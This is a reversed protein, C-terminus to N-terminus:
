QVTLSYSATSSVAGSTAVVNFTYTGPATKTGSPTGNSPASHGGGCGTLSTVSVFLVFGVGLLLRRGRAVPLLTLLGLLPLGCALVTLARLSEGERVSATTAAGTSVTLTTTAAATDSVTVSAPAFSCAAYTPLGTCSFNVMGSFGATGAVSVQTSVPEGSIATLSTSGGSGSGLTLPANVTQTLTGSAAVNNADGSYAATITHSGASSFSTTYSATGASVVGTGLTTSGDSFVVSGAPSFGSITATFTVNEGTYSPNASAAVSVSSTVPNVTLNLLNSVSAAYTADGSYHATLSYEGPPLTPNLTAGGGTNPIFVANAGAQLNIFFLAVFSANGGGPIPPATLLAYEPPPNGPAATSTFLPTGATLTGDGNGLLLVGSGLVMDPKGDGNVDETVLSLQASGVTHTSGITFNVPAAFTGDGNGLLTVVGNNMTNAQYSFVLDMKGDGNLDAFSTSVIGEDFIASTDIAKPAGFGTGLNLMVNLRAPEATNGTPVTNSQSLVDVRGDENVDAFSLGFVNYYTNAFTGGTFSPALPYPGMATFNGSSDNHFVTFAYQVTGPSGNAPPTNVAVIDTKGDGDIDVAYTQNFGSALIPLVAVRGFTGDGNGYAVTNGALLDLHGDGDVDLVEVAQGPLTTIQLGLQQAALQAFAPFTLNQLDTANGAFVQVALAPQGGSGPTPGYVLLDPAGDENFDGWVAGSAAAAVAPDPTGFVEAFGARTFGSSASLTASSGVATTGNYLTVTGGPAPSPLQVSAGPQVSVTFGVPAGPDQSPLLYTQSQTTGQAHALVAVLMLIPLAAAFRCCLLRM